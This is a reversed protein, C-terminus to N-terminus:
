ASATEQTQYQSKEQELRLYEATLYIQAFGFRNGQVNKPIEEYVGVAEYDIKKRIDEPFDHYLKDLLMLEEKSLQIVQGPLILNKIFDLDKIEM